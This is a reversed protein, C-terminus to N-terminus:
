SSRWKGFLLLELVVVVMNRGSWPAVNEGAVVATQM